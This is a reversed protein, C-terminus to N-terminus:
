WNRQIAGLVTSRVEDSRSGRGGLFQAALKKRVVVIQGDGVACLQESFQVVSNCGM